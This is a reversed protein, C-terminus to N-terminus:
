RQKKRLLKGKGASEPYIIGNVNGTIEARGTDLDLATIRMDTGDVSIIGCVSLLVICGEDFSIVDEIGNLTLSKREQMELTHKKVQVAKLNEAMNGDGM